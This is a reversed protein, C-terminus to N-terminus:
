MKVFKRVVDGVRVFYVGPSLHSVDLRVVGEGESLTPILNPTTIEMGLLDFIAVGGLGRELPPSLIEIYDSAPNPSLTTPSTYAENTSLALMSGSLSIKSMPNDPDNSLISLEALCQAQTKPSFAIEMVDSEGPIITMPLKEKNSYEGKDDSQYKFAASDITLDQAGTNYIYIYRSTTKGSDVKGFDFSNQTISIKPAKGRKGTLKVILSPQSPDNSEVIMNAQYEPFRSLKFNITIDAFGDPILTMPMKAAVSFSSDDIGSYEFRIGTVTLMDKGSNSIEIKKTVSKGLDVTGFDIATPKVSIQPLSSTRDWRYLESGASVYGYYDNLFCIEGVSSSTGTPIANWTNGGDRTRYVAGEEGGIFGISRDVFYMSWVGSNRMQSKWVKKWTKGADVSKYVAEYSSDQGSIYIIDRSVAQMHRFNADSFYSISDWLKGGNTTRYVIRNLGIGNKGSGLVYGTDRSEFTISRFSRKTTDTWSKTWTRGDDVTKFILDYDGCVYLTNKNAFSFDTVMYSPFYYSDPLIQQWSKGGDISKQVFGTNRLYDNGCIFLTDTGRNVLDYIVSNAIPLSFWDVGTNKTSFFKNSSVGLLINKDILHIKRLFMFGGAVPLKQWNAAAENISFYILLILLLTLKKM